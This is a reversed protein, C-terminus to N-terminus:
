LFLDTVIRIGMNGLGVTFATWTHYGYRSGEELRKKHWTLHEEYSNLPFVADDIVGTGGIFRGSNAQWETRSWHVLSIAMNKGKCDIAIHMSPKWPLNWGRRIWAVSLGDAEKSTNTQCGSHKISGRSKAAGPQKSSSINRLFISQIKEFSSIGRQYSEM